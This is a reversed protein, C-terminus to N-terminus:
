TPRTAAAHHRCRACSATTANCGSNFSSLAGPTTPGSAFCAQNCTAEIKLVASQGRTKGQGYMAVLVTGFPLLQLSVERLALKSVHESVSEIPDFGVEATKVWPITAPAWYDARSREPTTGSGTRTRSAICAVPVRADFAQVLLQRTLSEIGRESEDCANVVSKSLELRQRLTEAIRKQIDPGPVCLWLSALEPMYITKHVAGSSLSRLYQRSARLAQMLFAPELERSCVWNAFDQSTAMAQGLLAVYGVSATRSLCVTMAPLLRASSNKLGQENIRESTEHVVQGDHERIDPLALWRVEGGWWDARGRSPTHGSELRAVDTLCRWIWGTPCSSGPGGAYIPVVATMRQVVSEECGAGGGGAQGATGARGARGSRPHAAPKVTPPKGTGRHRRPRVPPGPM